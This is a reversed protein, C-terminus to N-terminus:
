LFISYDGGLGVWFGSSGFGFDLRGVFEDIPQYRLGAQFNIWPYVPWVDSSAGGNVIDYNGAPCHGAPASPDGPGRCNELNDLDSEEYRGNPSYAENRRLDGGVIGLGFGGGVQFSFRDMLKHDWMADITLYWVSLDSEINEWDANPDTKGKFATQEMDYYAIWPSFMVQFGDATKGWYGGIEPGVGHVVITRGGDVGFMNILFKPTVMARYRMGLLLQTNGTKKNSIPDGSKIEEPEAPSSEPEEDLEDLDSEEADAPDDLADAEGEDALSEASDDQALAPAGLTLVSVGLALATLFRFKSSPVQLM